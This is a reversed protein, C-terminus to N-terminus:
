KLYEVVDALEVQERGIDFLLDNITSLEAKWKCALEKARQKNSQYERHCDRCTAIWTQPMKEARPKGASGSVLHHIEIAPIGEEGKGGLHFQCHPNADLYLQELPKMQRKQKARKKSVPRLRGSRKLQSDGRALPVRKLETYRKLPKRPKGNM